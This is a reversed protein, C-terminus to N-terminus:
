AGIGVRKYTDRRVKTSAAGAIYSAGANLAGGVAAGIGGMRDLTAQAKQNKAQVLYAFAARSANYHEMM